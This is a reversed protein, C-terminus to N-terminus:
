ELVEAPIIKELLTKMKPNNVTVFKWNKLDSNSSAIVVKNANIKFFGSTKGFSVNGKGFKHEFSNILAQVKSEDNLDLDIMKM